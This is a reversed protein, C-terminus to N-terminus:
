MSRTLKVFNPYSLDTSATVDSWFSLDSSSWVQFSANSAAPNRPWSVVNGEPQPNATFSSGTQGMFYEVGNAVGDGDYDLDAAQGGANSATWSGYSGPMVGTFFKVRVSGTTPNFTALATQVNMNVSFVIDRTALLPSPDNSDNLGDGDSDTVM